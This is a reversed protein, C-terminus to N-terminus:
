KAANRWWDMEEWASGIVTSLFSTTCGLLVLYFSQCFREAIIDLGRTIQYEIPMCCTNCKTARLVPGTQLCKAVDIRLADLECKRFCLSETWDPGDIWHIPGMTKCRRWRRRGGMSGGRGKRRWRRRRWQGADNENFCVLALWDLVHFGCQWLFSVARNSGWKTSGRHVRKPGGKIKLGRVRGGM